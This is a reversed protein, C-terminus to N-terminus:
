LAISNSRFHREKGVRYIEGESAMEFSWVIPYITPKDKFGLRYM